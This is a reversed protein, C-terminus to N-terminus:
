FPAKGVSELSLSDIFIEVINSVQWVRNAVLDFFEPNLNASEKHCSAKDCTSAPQNAGGEGKSSEPDKTLPSPSPM